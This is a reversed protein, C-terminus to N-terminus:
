LSCMQHTDQETLLETGLEYRTCSCSGGLEEEGDNQRQERRNWVERNEFMEEGKEIRKRSFSTIALDFFYFCQLNNLEAVLVKHM